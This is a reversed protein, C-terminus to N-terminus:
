RAAGSVSPKRRVTPRFYVWPALNRAAYLPGCLEVVRKELEPEIPKELALAFWAQQLEPEDALALATAREIDAIHAIGDITLRKSRTVADPDIEFAVIPSRERTEVYSKIVARVIEQYRSYREARTEARAPSTVKKM